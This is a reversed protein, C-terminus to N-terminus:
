IHKTIKGDCDMVRFFFVCGMEITGWVHHFNWAVMTENLPLSPEWSIGVVDGHNEETKKV